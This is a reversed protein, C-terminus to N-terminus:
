PTTDEGQQAQTRRARMRALLLCVFHLIALPPTGFVSAVLLDIGHPDPVAQWGLLLGIMPVLYILMLACHILKHRVPRKPLLILLLSALSCAVAVAWLVEITLILRSLGPGHVCALMNM